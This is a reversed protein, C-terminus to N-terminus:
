ESTGVIVLTVGVFASLVDATRRLLENRDLPGPDFDMLPLAAQAVNPEERGRSRLLSARTKELLNEAFNRNITRWETRSEGYLKEMERGFYSKERRKSESHFHHGQVGEQYTIFHQDGDVVDDCDSLAIIRSQTTIQHALFSTNFDELTDFEPAVYYTHPNAVAHDRLRQHQQNNNKRHLAIRYYPGNYTGDAIFKANGRSLYDSLKFQYYFDIGNLPLHADWGQQQEQQLNPLVPAAQLNGWHAHTQEYLFAFGFTFESIGVIAVTNKRFEPSNHVGFPVDQPLQANL